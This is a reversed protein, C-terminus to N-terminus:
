YGRQKNVEAVLPQSAALRRLNAAILEVQRPWMGATASGLHPVILVQPLDWLPSDAPLPEQAFVDLAAARLRGAVLAAALADQDVLVGRAVNVVCARPPLLALRRADLLARSEATVPVALIAYDAQPLLGDLAAPAHVEDAAGAGQEPHARVALVTMGVAKLLRALEGGIAGLGILVATAGSLEAPQLPGYWIDEQAWHHRAQARVAEPLGRAIAFMMALAHEAVPGGHIERGNTVRVPSAVVEPTLLHHVAAAPSHVWLLKTAQALAGSPLPGAILVRARPLVALLEAESAPVVFQLAPFQLRLEATAESPWNWLGFRNHVWIVVPSLDM